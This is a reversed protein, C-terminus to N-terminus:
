KFWRDELCKRLKIRARYLMVHLNTTSINLTHCMEHSDFGIFERMMFTRSLNEPLENLCAEFIRWFHIDKVHKIPDAWHTPRAKDHWFGNQDFSPDLLNSPEEDYFENITNERTRKRLIDIIKNKLIAFVWTKFTSKGNFTTYNQYAAILAEQVADEALGEDKIQLFAFKFMDRRIQSIFAPDHFEDAIYKIKKLPLDTKEM